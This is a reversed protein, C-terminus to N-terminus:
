APARMVWAAPMNSWNGCSIMACAITVNVLNKTPGSPPLKRVYAISTRGALEGHEHSASMSCSIDGAQM